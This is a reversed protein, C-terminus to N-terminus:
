KQCAMIKLEILKMVTEDMYRAIRSSIQVSNKKDEPALKAMKGKGEEVLKLSKVELTRTGVKAKRLETFVKRDLAKRNVEKALCRLQGM